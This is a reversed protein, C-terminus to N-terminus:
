DFRKNEVCDGCLEPALSMNCLPKSIVDTINKEHEVDTLILPLKNQWMCIFTSLLIVLFVYLVIARFSWLMRSFAGRKQTHTQRDAHTYPQLARLELVTEFEVCM